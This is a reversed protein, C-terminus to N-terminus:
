CLKCKSKCNASLWADTCQNETYSACRSDDTCTETSSYAATQTAPSSTQAQTDQQNSATSPAATETTSTTQTQATSTQTASDQETTTTSSSQTQETSTKTATDKEATTTSSSQAQETSTKETEKAPKMEHIEDPKTNSKQVAPDEVIAQGKSVALTEKHDGEIVEVSPKRSFKDGKKPVDIEINEIMPKTINQKLVMLPKVFGAGSKNPPMIRIEQMQPVGKVLKPKVRLTYKAVLPKEGPVPAVLDSELETNELDKVESPLIQKTAPVNVKDKAQCLNCTRPCNIQWWTDNCNSYGYACDKYLDDCYINFVYPMPPAKPMKPCPKCDKPPQVNKNCCTWPTQAPADSDVTVDQTFSQGTSTLDLNGAAITQNSTNNWAALGQATLNTMQTQNTQTVNAVTPEFGAVGVGAVPQQTENTALTITQNLLEITQNAAPTTVQAQNTVIPQQGALPQAAAAAPQAVVPQQAAVPAAPQQVAAAGQGVQPAVPASAAASAAPAAPAGAPAGAAAAAPAAPAPALPAGSSAPAAPAAMAPAAPQAVAPAAPVGVAPAAPQAEAPTGSAAPAATQVAAAGTANELTGAADQMGGTQQQGATQQNPDAAKDQDVYRLNVPHQDPYLFLWNRYNSKYDFLSYSTTPSPTTPSYDYPKSLFVVDRREGKDQARKQVKKAKAAHKSKHKTKGSIGHKKDGKLYLVAPLNMIDQGEYECLRCM